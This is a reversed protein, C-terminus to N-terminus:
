TGYGYNGLLAALDSLDVDGDGDIDGDEYTVGKTMGYHALLQALDSLDVDGDFDLDGPIVGWPTILPYLDVNMGDPPIEYVNPYGPNDSFDSWYNGEQLSINYWNNICEDYANQIYNILNNHFIRNNNSDGYPWGQILFIGYLNKEIINESIINDPSGQVFIGYNVNQTINNRCIENNSALFYLTIGSQTNGSLHNDTVTNYDSDDYQIIVANENGWINNRCIKNRSSSSLKIGGFKNYSIENESLENDHSNEKLTIGYECIHSSFLDNESIKNCSSNWLTIEDYICLSIENKLIEINSSYGLQIGELVNSISLNQLIFNTCNALIVQAADQPVTIGDLNKYYYIPRENAKIDEIYQTNNNIDHTNYHSIVAGNLGIGKEVSNDCVIIDHSSSMWIGNSITNNSINHNSGSFIFIGFINNYMIINDSINNKSGHDLLIGYDNNNSMLNGSITCNSAYSIHIGRNGNMIKFGKVMCNDHNIRIVTYTPIGDIIPKGTDDGSGLEYDLGILSIQKNVVLKEQYEGSYVEIIDGDTANDIADQISSYDGDGENDVSITNRGLIIIESDLEYVYEKGNNNLESIRITASSSFAAFIIMLICIFIGIIEKDAKNKM